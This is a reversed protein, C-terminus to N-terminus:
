ITRAMGAVLKEAVAVVPFHITARPLSPFVSADIVRLGDVGRVGGGIDVVGSPDHAPAM